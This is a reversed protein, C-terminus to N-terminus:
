EAFPEDFEFPQNSDNTLEFPEHFTYGDKHDNLIEFITVTHIYEGQFDVYFEYHEDETKFQIWNGHETNFDKIKDWSLENPSILFSELQKLLSGKGGNKNEFDLEVLPNEKYEGDTRQYTKKEGGNYSGVAYYNYRLSTGSDRLYVGNFNFFEGPTYFFIEGEYTMGGTSELDVSDQKKIEIYLGNKREIMALYQAYEEKLQNFRELGEDREKCGCLTLPLAAIFLLKGLKM